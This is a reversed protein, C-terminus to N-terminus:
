RSAAAIDGTGPPVGEPARAAPRAMAPQHVHLFWRDLLVRRTWTPSRLLRAGLRRALGGPVVGLLPALLPAFTGRRGLRAAVAERYPELDERRYRGAAAAAARAALLGSEVAPRIGEGSPSYALGAADGVLMM